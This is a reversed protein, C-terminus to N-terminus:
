VLDQQSRSYRFLIHHIVQSVFKLQVSLHYTSNAVCMATLTKLAQTKAPPLQSESSLISVLSRIVAHQPNPQPEKHLPRTQNDPLQVDSASAINSSAAPKVIAVTNITPPAVTRNAIASTPTNIIKTPPRGWLQQAFELNSSDWEPCAAGNPSDESMWIVDDNDGVLIDVLRSRYSMNANQVIELSSMPCDRGRRSHSTSSKLSTKGGRTQLRGSASEGLYEVEVQLKKLLPDLVEDDQEGKKVRIATKVHSVFKYTLSTCCDLQLKDCCDLFQTLYDELLSRESLQKRIAEDQIIFDVSKDINGERIHPIDLLKATVKQLQLQLIEPRTFSLLTTSGSYIGFADAIERRTNAFDVVFTETKGPAVRSLRGLTQVANADHLRKDVYMAVLSPEDFGLLTLLLYSGWVIGTQFKDAVIILRIRSNADSKLAQM